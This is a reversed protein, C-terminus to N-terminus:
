RLKLGSGSGKRLSRSSRFTRARSEFQYFETFHLKVFLEHILTRLPSPTRDSAPASWLVGSCALARWARRNVFTQIKCMVTPDSERRTQIKSTIGLFMGKRQGNKIFDSYLLGGHILKDKSHWSVIGVLLAIIKQSHCDGVV